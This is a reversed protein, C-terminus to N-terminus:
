MNYSYNGAENSILYSGCDTFVIKDPIFSIHKLKDALASPINRYYVGNACVVCIGYDTICAYKITGYKDRATIMSQRHSPDSAVFQKDSIVVYSGLQSISVCRIEDYNSNYENLKAKLGDPMFGTWGNRGYVVCYYGLSTYAISKFKYKKAYIDDIAKNLGSPLGATRAFGYDGYVVVGSGDESLAGMQCKGSKDVADRLYKRGMGKCTSVRTTGSSRFPAQIVGDQSVQIEFHADYTLLRITGTRSQSSSNRDVTIVLRDGNASITNASIWYPVYDGVYWHTNASVAITQTGGDYDFKLSSPYASLSTAGCSQSINVRVTKNRAKLEFFDDRSTVSKNPSVTVKINNGSRALHVWNTPYVSISWDTSSYVYVSQFGGDHFFSLDSNSVSISVPKCLELLQKAQSNQPDLTLVSNLLVKAADFNENEIHSKAAEIKANIIQTKEFQSSALAVPSAMELCLFSVGLACVFYM